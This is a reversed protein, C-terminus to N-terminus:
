SSHRELKRDLRSQRRYGCINCHRHHGSKESSLSAYWDESLLVSRTSPAIDVPTFHVLFETHGTRIASNPPNFYGEAIGTQIANAVESWAIITGRAGMAEQYALMEANLSRFRMGQLDDMTTIPKTKNHIGTSMGIYNFGAIRVGNEVLPANIRDLLDSEIMLADFEDNSDFMFPLAVGKLMPSMGYATSVTALNVNILGQAVQDFREKEKGLTGSPFTKVNFETGELAASFGQVFAAEANTAPDNIGNLAVKIDEASATTAMVGLTTAVIMSTYKM